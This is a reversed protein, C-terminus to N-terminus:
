SQRKNDGKIIIVISWVQLDIPACCALQWSKAPISRGKGDIIFKRHVMANDQVFYDCM